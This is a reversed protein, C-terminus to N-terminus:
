SQYVKDFFREVVYIYGSNIIDKARLLADHCSCGPCFSFSNWIFLFDYYHTLILNITQNIMKGNDRLMEIRLVPNRCYSGDLLLMISKEQLLSAIPSTWWLCRTLVTVIRNSNHPIALKYAKYLNDPLLIAEVLYDKGFPVKVVNYEIM